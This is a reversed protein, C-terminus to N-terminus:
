AHAGRLLDVAQVMYGVLERYYVETLLPNRRKVWGFYFYRAFDLSAGFAMRRLLSRILYAKGFLSSDLLAWTRGSWYYRERFFDKHMRSPSIKHKVIAVPCFWIQWGAAKGRFNLETEEGSLLLDGIRGFKPDFGGLNLIMQRSYTINAGVPYQRPYDLAFGDAPGDYKCVSLVPYFEEELWKPPPQPWSPLVAGGLVGISPNRELCDWIKSLWDIEPVADDDLFTVYKGNAHQWGTNRAYSLGLQPEVFTFVNLDTDDPEIESLVHEDIGNYVIILEYKAKTFDQNFVALVTERLSEARNYSCIVVSIEPPM